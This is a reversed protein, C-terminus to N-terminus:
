LTRPEPAVGLVYNNIIDLTSTYKDGSFGKIDEETMIDAYEQMFISALPYYSWHWKEEEHGVERLGSGPAGKASYPQYFGYKHANECLWKYVKKGASSRWYDFSKNNLDMDTGWHHRSAGPPASYKLLSKARGIGLPLSSENWKKIWVFRQIWFNRACSLIVLRIGDQRAAEWMKEFAQYAERNMYNYPARQYTYKKDMQVFSSDESFKNLGRLFDKRSTAVTAYKQAYCSVMGLLVLTCICLILKKM